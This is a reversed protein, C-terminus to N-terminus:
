NPFFCIGAHNLKGGCMNTNNFNDSAIWLGASTILMDDAGHGRGRTPNYTLLGSSPSLGEMGPASIAGSGAFDCGNPNQSWREHGGFYATTSDAATAFLSDCGTYNIWKPSPAAQTSSFALAADCPGTMPFSGNWNYLHYGTDATYVTSGDPSWSAAKVYFPETFYCKDQFIPPAWATVTATTGSLNLMFIQQRSLGGVSTFDGEVLELGGSPSIQQNYVHTPNSSTCKSGSCYQYHGSIHLSIFGDDKGTSTNLSAFYSDASSGNISTFMGGTLLHTGDIALTEVQGNANHGFTSVVGGTSTSVAAIDKVATGGISTFVGGLYATSCTSNVAISNVIGNV